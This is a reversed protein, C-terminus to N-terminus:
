RVRSTRRTASAWAADEHAKAEAAARRMPAGILEDALLQLSLRAEPFTM